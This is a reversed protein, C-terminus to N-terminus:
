DNTSEQEKIVARIRGGSMKSKGTRLNLVAKEGALENKGRVLVVSDELFIEQTGAVFKAYEATALNAKQDNKQIHVSGEAIAEQLQLEDSPPMKEFFATVKDAKIEGDPTQITVRDFAEAKQTQQHYVLREAMISNQESVLKALINKDDGHVTIIKESIEYIGRMGVLNSQGFFAQVRNPTASIAEAMFISTQNDGDKRYHAILKDAQLIFDGQTAIVNGNATYTLLERDWVIEEDANIEIPEKNEKFPLEQAFAGWGFVGWRFVLLFLLAFKM